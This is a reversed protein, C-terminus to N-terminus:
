NMNKIKKKFLLIDPFFARFNSAVPPSTLYAERGPDQGRDVTQIFENKGLEDKGWVWIGGCM